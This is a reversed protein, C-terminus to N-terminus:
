VANPPMLFINDPCSSSSSSFVLLPRPKLTPTMHATFHSVPFSTLPGGHAFSRRAEHWVPSDSSLPLMVLDM